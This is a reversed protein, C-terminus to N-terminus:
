EPTETPTEEAPLVAPTHNMMNLINPYVQELDPLETGDPGRWIQSGDINITVISLPQGHTLNLYANWAERALFERAQDVSEADYYTGNFPSHIKYFTKM